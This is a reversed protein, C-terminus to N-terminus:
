ILFFYVLVVFPVHQLGIEITKTQKLTTPEFTVLLKVVGAGLPVGVDRWPAEATADNTSALYGSAM